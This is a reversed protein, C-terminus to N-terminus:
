LNVVLLVLSPSRGPIIWGPSTFSQTFATVSSFVSFNPRVFAPYEVRIFVKAAQIAFALATSSGKAVYEVYLV